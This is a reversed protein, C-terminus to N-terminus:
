VCVRATKGMITVFMDTNYLVLVLLIIFRNIFACIGKYSTSKEYNSVKIRNRAFIFQNRMTKTENSM